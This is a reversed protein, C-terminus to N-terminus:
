LPDLLPKLVDPIVISPNLCCAPSGLIDRSLDDAKNLASQVYCPEITLNAAGLSSSIILLMENHSPNRFHGKWFSHIVSTNDCNIKFCADHCGSCTLWAVALEIAVAEAWGIDRGESDWNELLCWAAWHGDILVGIGVSTSADVWIDLPLLPLPKLCRSGHPISLTCSWWKLDKTITMPVHHLIHPNQSKSLFHALSPLHSCGQQYVLTVHQLSSHISAIDKINLCMSPNFVIEHVKNLLRICKDEPLSVMHLPLNWNFGMYAFCSSFDHGKNTIPHWPIGLPSTIRLIDNLTFNFHPLSSNPELPLCPIPFFVFDDVWKVTPEINHYKLIAVTADAVNGHIGGATALGKIAVHQVYVDGKWFV